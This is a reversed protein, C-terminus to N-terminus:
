SSSPCAVNSLRTNNNFHKTKIHSTKWILHVYHMNSPPLSRILSHTFQRMCVFISPISRPLVICICIQYKWEIYFPCACPVYIWEFDSAYIQPHVSQKMYVRSTYRHVQATMCQACMQIMTCVWWVFAYAGICTAHSFHLNYRLWMEPHVYVCLCPCLWLFENDTIFNGWRGHWAWATCTCMYQPTDISCITVGM